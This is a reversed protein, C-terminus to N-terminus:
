SYASYNMDDDQGWDWADRSGQESPDQSSFDSMARGSDIWNQRREARLLKREKQEAVERWVMQRERVARARRVAQGLCSVCLKAAKDQPGEAISRCSLCRVFPM